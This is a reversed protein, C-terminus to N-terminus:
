FLKKVVTTKKNRRQTQPTLNNLSPATMLFHTKMVVTKLKDQDKCLHRGSREAQAITSHILEGGQAGHLGLGFGYRNIWPVCHVELFHQKPIVKNPFHTRYLSM